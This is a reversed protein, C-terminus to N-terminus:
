IVQFSYSIETTFPKKQNNDNYKGSVKWVLNLNRKVEPEIMLWYGDSVGKGNSRSNIKIELINDPPITFDFIPSIVRYSKWWDSGNKEIQHSLDFDDHKIDIKDVDGEQEDAMRILNEFNNGYELTTFISTNLPILIKKGFPITCKREVRTNEPANTFFYVPGKQDLDSYKGTRDYYPNVESPISLIWKFYFSTWESFSYGLILENPSYIKM